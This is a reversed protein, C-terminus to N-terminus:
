DDIEDGLKTLVKECVDKRAFVAGKNPAKFRLVNFGSRNAICYGFEGFGVGYHEITYPPHSFNPDIYADNADCHVFIGM